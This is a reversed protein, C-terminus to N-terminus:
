VKIYKLRNLIIDEFFKHVKELQECEYGMNKIEIELQDLESKSSSIFYVYHPKTLNLYNGMTRIFERTIEIGRIGGEWSYDINEKQFHENVNSSSPLYPPNFVIINFKSRLTHPFSKFLDSHIYIIKENINNRKENEKACKISDGLIDSAYIKPNFKPIRSKVLEFLIAIIGTGTGMDLIYKIEKLPIGDFYNNDITRKLYDILLYSDDSPYYVNKFDCEFLPDFLNNIPM